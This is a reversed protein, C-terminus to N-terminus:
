DSSPKGQLGVPAVLVRLLTKEDDRSIGVFRMGILVSEDPVNRSWIIEGDSAFGPFQLHVVTRLPLLQTTRVLVGTASLNESVGSFHVKTSPISLEMPLRIDYRPAPTSM